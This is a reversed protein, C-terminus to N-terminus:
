WCHRGFPWGGWFGAYGGHWHGWAFQPIYRPYSYVRIGRNWWSGDNSYTDRKGSRARAYRTLAVDGVDPAAAMMPYAVTSSSTSVTAAHAPSAAASTQPSVPPPQVVRQAQKPPPPMELVVQAAAERAEAALLAMAITLTALTRQRLHM